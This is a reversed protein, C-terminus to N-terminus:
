WKKPFAHRDSRNQNATSFNPRERVRLDVKEFREGILGYNRDLIGSEEL